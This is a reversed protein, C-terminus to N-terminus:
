AGPRLLTISGTALEGPPSFPAGRGLPAAPCRTSDFHSALRAMPGRGHGGILSAMRGVGQLFPARRTPLRPLSLKSEAPWLAMAFVPGLQGVNAALPLM